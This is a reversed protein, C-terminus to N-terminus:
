NNVRLVNQTMVAMKKYKELNSQGRELAAKYKQTDPHEKKAMLEEIEKMKEQTLRKTGACLDYWSNYLCLLLSCFIFFVMFSFFKGLRKKQIEIIEEQLDRSEQYCFINKLLCLSGCIKCITWQSNVCNSLSNFMRSTSFSSLSTNQLINNVKNKNVIISM